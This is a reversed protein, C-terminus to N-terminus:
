CDSVLVDKAISKFEEFSLKKDKNTDALMIRELCESPSAKPFLSIMAAMCESGELFNSHDLDFMDFMYRLKQLTADSLELDIDEHKSQHTNDNNISSSFTDDNNGPDHMLDDVDFGYKMAVKSMMEVERGRYSDLIRDIQGVKEPAHKSFFNRLIRRYKETTATQEDQSVSQQQKPQQKNPESDSSTPEPGYKAVLTEFMVKEKGKFMELTREIDSIKSPNYHKYFRAIRAYNAAYNSYDHQDVTSSPYAVTTAAAIPSKSRTPSTRNRTPSTRALESPEPGYKTALADFLEKERGKFSELAREVNSIKSPDYHKYFKVLREYNRSYDSFNENNNNNSNGTIQPPASSRSGDNNLYQSLDESRKPEPGYKRVLLSFMENFNGGQYKELIADIRPIKSQDYKTYFRELRLRNELPTTTAPATVVQDPLLGAARSEAEEIEKSVNYKLCIKEFINDETVALALAKEVSAINDPWYKTYFNTLRARLREKESPPLDKVPVSSSM